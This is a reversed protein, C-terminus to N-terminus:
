EDPLHVVADNVRVAQWGSGDHVLENLGVNRIPGIRHWDAITHGPLLTLLLVRCVHGHAVIALSRGAHQTTIREWVPLVRKRVADFSEAGPSAYDTEGAKWRRITETWVGDGQIPCGTLIGVRREHLDREVHLNLNCAEAIPVATEMARRMGSSILVEPRCGVLYAALCQAQRRGRESLGVDSEAGLFLHPTASEAHRLLYVRTLV